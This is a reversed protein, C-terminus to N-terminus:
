KKEFAIQFNNRLVEVEDSSNSITIFQYPTGRLYTYLWILLIKLIPIKDIQFLLGTYLVIHTVILM